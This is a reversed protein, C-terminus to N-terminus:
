SFRALQHPETRDSWRRLRIVSFRREWDGINNRNRSGNVSFGASTDNTQIAGPSLLVLEYPNRTLLPLNLLTKSDVLTSLQASETEIPAVQAGNVEITQEQAGVALSADLSLSQAVTLPAFKVPKFGAKEVTVSYGGPVLNTVSYYGSSNTTATRASNNGQNTITVQAGEVVAGSADTVRGSVSGTNQTWLPCSLAFVTLFLVLKRAKM